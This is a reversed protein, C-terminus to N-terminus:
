HWDHSPPMAVGSPVCHLDAAILNTTGDWRSVRGTVAVVNNALKTQRRAFLDAWVIVQVDGTEDELTVFVTGDRGRPHQRAIPWGAVTVQEDDNREEIAAAPRILAVQYALDLLNRSRLRQAMKLQAPSQLLFVGKYLGANVMDYVSPDEPDLRNLDLRGGEREEVLNLAEEMQDLVPLSLIDIKAFGADAVSDKNWDMIYRGDMAAARVPVMELLCSSSLVMGGVHQSLGKPAGMLQPALDLLDRWGPADVKNGFEPLQAMEDRLDAARHSSLQKSLLRLREQPLGLAKGM